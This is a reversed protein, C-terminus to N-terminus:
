EWGVLQRTSEEEVWFSGSYLKVLCEAATGLQQAIIQLKGYSYCEGCLKLFSVVIEVERRAAVVCGTLALLAQELLAQFLLPELPPLRLDVHEHHLWGVRIGRGIVLIFILPHVASFTLRGELSRRM